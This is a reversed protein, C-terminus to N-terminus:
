KPTMLFAGKNGTGTIQGKSNISRAYYLVWGSDSPIQTNLDIMVGNKFLFARVSQDASDSDGVVLGQDNIATAHSSKDGSLVGLDQPVSNSWTVAHASGGSTDSTGAVVGSANVANASSYSGGPLYGLGMVAGSQWVCAQPNARSQYASLGVIIGAGSVGYAESYTYSALTALRSPQYNGSADKQWVIAHENVKDTESGVIEGSPSIGKAQALLGVYGELSPLLTLQGNSYVFAYPYSPRENTNYLEGVVDNNDNIDKAEGSLIDSTPNGNSYRIQTYQGNIYLLASADGGSYVRQGAIVGSNNVKSPVFSGSDPPSITAITYVSPTIPTPSTGPPSTVPSTTDSSSGGGGGGCGSLLAPMLALGAAVTKSKLNM